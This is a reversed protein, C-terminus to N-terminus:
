SKATTQRAHIGYFDEGPQALEGLDKTAIDFASSTFAKKISIDIGGIRELNVGGAQSPRLETARRHKRPTAARISIRIRDLM